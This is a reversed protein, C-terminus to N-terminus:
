GDPDREFRGICTLLVAASAIRCHKASPIDSAIEAKVESSFSM